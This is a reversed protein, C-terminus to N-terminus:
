HINEICFQLEKHTYIYIMNTYYDDIKYHESCHWTLARDLENLYITNVM